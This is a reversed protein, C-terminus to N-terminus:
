ILVLHMVELCLNALHRGSGSGPGTKSSDCIKIVKRNGLTGGTGNHRQKNVGEAQSQGLFRGCCFILWIYISPLWNSWKVTSRTHTHTSRTHQTHSPPRHGRPSSLHATEATAAPGNDHLSLSPCGIRWLSFCGCFDPLSTNSHLILSFILLLM